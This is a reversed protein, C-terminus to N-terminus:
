PKFYLVRLIGVASDTAILFGAAVNDHILGFSPLADEPIPVMGRLCWWQYLTTYDEDTYERISEKAHKNLAEM